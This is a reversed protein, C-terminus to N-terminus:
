EDQLLYGAIQAVRKWDLSRQIARVKNPDRHPAHPTGPWWSMLKQVSLAALCHNAGRLKKQVFPNDPVLVSLTQMARPTLRMPRGLEHAAKDYGRECTQPNRFM